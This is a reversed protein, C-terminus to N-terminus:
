KRGRKKDYKKKKYSIYPRGVLSVSYFWANARITWMGDKKGQTRLHHNSVSYWKEPLFLEEILQWLTDHDLSCHMTSETDWTPGSAGDWRYGKFQIIQGDTFLACYETIVAHKLKLGKFDITNTIDMLLEYKYVPHDIKKYHLGEKLIM